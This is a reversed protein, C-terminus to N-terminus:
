LLLRRRLSSLYQVNCIVMKTKPLYPWYGKQLVAIAERPRNLENLCWGKELWADSFDPKLEIAKNLLSLVEICNNSKKFEMAKNFLEVANGQASMQTIFFYSLIILNAIRKM